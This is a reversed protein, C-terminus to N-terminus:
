ENVMVETISCVESYDSSIAWHYGKEQHWCEPSIKLTKEVAKKASEMSLYFGAISYVAEEFSLRYIIM